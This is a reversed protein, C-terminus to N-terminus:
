IATRGLYPLFLSLLANTGSEPFFLTLNHHKKHTEKPPPPACRMNEVSFDLAMGGEIALAPAPPAMFGPPPFNRFQTENGAGISPVSLAEEARERERERAIDGAELFPSPPLLSAQHGAVIIETLIASHPSM